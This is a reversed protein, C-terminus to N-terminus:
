NTRGEVHVTVNERPIQFRRNLRRELEETLEHAAIGDEPHEVLIRCEVFAGTGEGRTRLRDCDLIGPIELIVARIREPPIRVADILIPVTRAFARYGIRGIVMVILLSAWADASAYGLKASVWSALVATTVLIDSRTHAADTLLFPSGLEEGRRREYESVAVNAVLTILMVVPVLPDTIPVLTGGAVLRVIAARALEFGTLCILGAVAFAALTEAKGHGYPHERDPPAAAYAIAVFGVLNNLADIGSHLADAQVALSGTFLGVGLKALGLLLNYALEIVLVRRIARATQKDV